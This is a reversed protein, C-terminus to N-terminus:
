VTNCESQMHVIGTSIMTWIVHMADSKIAHSWARPGFSSVTGLMSRQRWPGNTAVGQQKCHAPLFSPRWPTGLWNEFLRGAEPDAASIPPILALRDRMARYGVIRFCTSLSRCVYCHVGETSRMRTVQIPAHPYSPM